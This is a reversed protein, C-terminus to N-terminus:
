ELVEPQFTYIYEGFEELHKKPGVGSLMLLQPTNQSGASLIVEKSAYATYYKGNRYYEVGYAYKLNPDILIKTVQAKIYIKLNKRDRTSRLYAKEASCRAGSKLTAQVYSVKPYFM